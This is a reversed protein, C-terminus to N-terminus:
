GRRRGLGRTRREPQPSAPTAMFDVMVQEGARVDVNRTRVVEQGNELWKAKIEYVYNRGPTIPPSVFSRRPGTQTTKATEIMVEASAPVRVDLYVPATRAAEMTDPSYNSQRIQSQPQPSTIVAEDNSGRDRRGRRLLQAQSADVVMMLVTLALLAAFSFGKRMM